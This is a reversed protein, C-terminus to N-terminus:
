ALFKEGFQCWFDSTEGWHWMRVPQSYQINAIMVATGKWTLVTTELNVVVKHLQTPVACSSCWQFFKRLSWNWINMYLMVHLSSDAGVISTSVHWFTFPVGTKINAMRQKRLSQNSWSKFFFVPKKGHQISHHLLGMIIDCLIAFNNLNESLCLWHPRLITGRSSM